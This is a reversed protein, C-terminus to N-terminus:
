MMEVSQIEYEGLTIKINRCDLQQDFIRKWCPGPNTFLCYIAISEEEPIVFRLTKTSGPVMCFIQFCSPDEDEPPFTVMQAIKQYDDVLFNSFDTTKILVYLPAGCNSSSTTKVQVTTKQPSDSFYYFDPLYDWGDSVKSWGNSIHSCGSFLLACLLLPILKKAKNLM